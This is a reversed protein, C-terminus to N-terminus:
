FPAKGGVHVRPCETEIRAVLADRQRQLGAIQEDLDQLQRVATADLSRVRAGGADELMGDAGVVFAGAGRWYAVTQGHEDYYRPLDARLQAGRKSRVLFMRPAPATAPPADQRAAREAVLRALTADAAAQISAIQEGPHEHVYQLFARQRQDPSGRFATQIREWLPLLEPPLNVTVAQAAERRHEWGRRAARARASM